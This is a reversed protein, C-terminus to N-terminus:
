FCIFDNKKLFFFWKYEFENIKRLTNFNGLWSRCWNHALVCPVSPESLSEVRASMSFMELQNHLMGFWGCLWLGDSYILRIDILLSIFVCLLLIFLVFTLHVRRKRICYLVFYNLLARWNEQRTMLRSRHTSKSMNSWCTTTLQCSFRCLRRSSSKANPVVFVIKSTTVITITSHMLALVYEKLHKVFVYVTELRSYEVNWIM